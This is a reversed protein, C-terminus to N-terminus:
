VDYFTRPAFTREREDGAFLEALGKGSFYAMRADRYAKKLEAASKKFWGTGSYERHLYGYLWVARDWKEAQLAERLPVRWTGAPLDTSRALRWRTWQLQAAAVVALM